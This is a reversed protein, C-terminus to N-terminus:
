RSPLQGCWARVFDGITEMSIMRRNEYTGHKRMREFLEDGFWLQRDGGMIRYGAWKFVNKTSVPQFLKELSDDPRLLGSISGFESEILDFCEDVEEKPLGEPAFYLQFVSERGIDSRDAFRNKIATLWEGDLTRTYNLDKLRNAHGM